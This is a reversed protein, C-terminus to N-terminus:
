NSPFLPCFWSAARYCWEVVVCFWRGIRIEVISWSFYTISICAAHIAKRRRADFVMSTSGRSRPMQCWQQWWPLKMQRTSWCTPCLLKLVPSFSCMKFRAGSCWSLWYTSPLFDESSWKRLKTTLSIQISAQTQTPTSLRPIMNWEIWARLKSWVYLVQRPSGTRSFM